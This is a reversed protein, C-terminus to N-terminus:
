CPLRDDTTTFSESLSRRKQNHAPETIESDSSSPSSESSYDQLLQTEDPRPSCTDCPTSPSNSSRREIAQAAVALAESIVKELDSVAKRFLFGDFKSDSKTSHASMGTMRRALQIHDLSPIPSDRDQLRASDRKLKREPLKTLKTTYTDPYKIMQRLWRATRNYDVLSGLSLSRQPIPNGMLENNMRSEPIKAYGQLNDVNAADHQTASVLGLDVIPVPPHASLSHEKLRFDDGTQRDIFINASQVHLVSVFCTKVM